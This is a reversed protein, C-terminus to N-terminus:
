EDHMVAELEEERRRAELTIFPATFIHTPLFSALILVLLFHVVFLVSGPLLGPQFVLMGFVFDKVAVIDPRFFFTMLLGTVCISFVLSLIFFNYRSVYKERRSIRVVALYLVSLPLVYGALLGCRQIDVICGPVPNMFYRLHRLIVFFFSFHFTWSGIWLAPDVRFLRGLLALQGAARAYVCLSVPGRPPRYRRFQGAARHWLLLHFGIRGWFWAYVLYALVLILIRM